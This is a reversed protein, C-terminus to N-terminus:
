KTIGFLDSRVMEPEAANLKTQLYEIPINNKQLIYGSYDDERYKSIKWGNEGFTEKLRDYSSTHSRMGYEPNDAQAFLMSADITGDSKIRFATEIRVCGTLCISCIMLVFGLLVFRRLRKM